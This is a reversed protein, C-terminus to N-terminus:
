KTIMVTAYNSPLSLEARGVAVVRYTILKNKAPPQLTYSTGRTIPGAYWKKGGDSSAEVRYYLVKSTSATWYIQVKRYGAVVYVDTPANVSNPSITSVPEPALSDANAGIAFGVLLSMISYVYFRTKM